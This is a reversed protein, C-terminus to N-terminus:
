QKAKKRKLAALVTNISPSRVLSGDPGYVDDYPKDGYRKDDKKDTM